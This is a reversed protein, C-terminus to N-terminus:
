FYVDIYVMYTHWICLVMYISDIGYNFSIFLMNCSPEPKSLLLPGVPLYLSNIANQTM